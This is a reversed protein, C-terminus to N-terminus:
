SPFSMRTTRAIAMISNDSLLFFCDVGLPYARNKEQLMALFDINVPLTIQRTDRIGPGRLLVTTPRDSRDRALIFLTASHDPNILTGSKARSLYETEPWQLFLYDALGPSAQPSGTIARLQDEDSVGHFFSSVEAYLLCHALTILPCGSPVVLKETSGPCALATM